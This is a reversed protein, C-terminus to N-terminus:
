LGFFDPAGPKKPTPPSDPDTKVRATKPRPGLSPGSSWGFLRVFIAPRGDLSVEGEALGALIIWDGEEAAATSAVGGLARALEDARVALPRSSQSPMLRTVKGGPTEATETVQAYVVVGRPFEAGTKALDDRAQAVLADRYQRGIRGLTALLSVGNEIAAQRVKEDTDGALMLRVAGEAMRAFYGYMADGCIVGEGSCTKCTEPKKEIVNGVLGGVKRKGVVKSVMVQGKGNCTKCRSHSRIARVLGTFTSGSMPKGALGQVDVPWAAKPLESFPKLQAAASLLANRLAGAPVVVQKGSGAVQLFVGVVGGTADVVAAGSAVDLHAPVFALFEPAGTPPPVKVEAALDAAPCGNKVSGVTADLEEAWRWGVVAVPVDERGGATSLSLGGRKEDPKDVQIAVLGTAPDALGFQTSTASAGDSFRLTVRVVGPRSVSALDTVVFKGAGLLFGSAYAVPLGLAGEARVLCVRPGVSDRVTAADLAAAARAAVPASAALAAWCVAVLVTARARLASM